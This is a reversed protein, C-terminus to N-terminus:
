CEYGWKETEFIEVIIEKPALYEFLLLLDRKIADGLEEVTHIKHVKTVNWHDYKDLVTLIKEKIFAFDIFEKKYLRKLVDNDLKIKIKYTHGHERACKKTLLDPSDNIRHGCDISFNGILYGM